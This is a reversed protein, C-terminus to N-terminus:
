ENVLDRIVNYEKVNLPRHMELKSEVAKAIKQTNGYVFSVRTLLENVDGVTKLMEGIYENEYLCELINTFERVGDYKAIQEKAYTEDKFFRVFDFDEELNAKKYKKKVFYELERIYRYLLQPQGEIGKTIGLIKHLMQQEYLTPMLSDKISKLDRLQKRLDDIKREGLKIDYEGKESDYTKHLEAIVANNRLKLKKLFSVFALKQVIDSNAWSISQQVIADDYMEEVADYIDDLSDM